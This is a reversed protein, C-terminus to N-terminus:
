AHFYIMGSDNQDPIKPGQITDPTRFLAKQVKRKARGTCKGGPNNRFM